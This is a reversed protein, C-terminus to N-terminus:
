GRRPSLPTLKWKAVREKAWERYQELQKVRARVRQAAVGNLYSIAAALKQADTAPYPTKDNYISAEQEKGKLGFWRVRLRDVHTLENLELVRNTYSSRRTEWTAPVYEQVHVKDTTAQIADARANVDAIQQTVNEIMPPLLECSQEYPLENSGPCTGEFYSFRVTYGHKALVGGPLKQHRGCIQCNGDHTAKSM